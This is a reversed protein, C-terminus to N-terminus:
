LGSRNVARILGADLQLILDSDGAGANVGAIFTMALILCDHPEGYRRVHDATSMLLTAARSNKQEKSAIVLADALKGVNIDNSSM